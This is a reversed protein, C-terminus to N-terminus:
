GRLWYWFRGIWEHLALYSKRLGDPRPLYDLPTAPERAFCTPAPVVELGAQIFAQAARPLHWAHSVLLVKSVNAEKLLLATARANERTNEASGEVWRVPVKFEEKLVQAMAQAESADGGEPNGGTVLIPLGTRRQVQAAYRLRVLTEGGVTDGGYEPANRYRGGGLVVIAGAGKAQAQWQGPELPAVELRHVLADGVVPMSLVALLLGGAMALSLAARPWRHRLLLALLLLALGNGPPLLLAVLGNTVIWSISMQNKKERLGIGGM